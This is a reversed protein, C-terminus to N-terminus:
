MGGCGYAGYILDNCRDAAAASKLERGKAAAYSAEKLARLEQRECRTEAAQQGLRQLRRAAAETLRQRESIAKPRAPTKPAKDKEAQVKQLYRGHKREDRLHQISERQERRAVTQEFQAQKAVQKTRSGVENPNPAEVPRDCLCLKPCGLSTDIIGAKRVKRETRQQLLWITLTADSRWWSVQAAAFSSTDLAIWVPWRIAVGTGLVFDASVFRMLATSSAKASTPPLAPSEVFTLPETTM